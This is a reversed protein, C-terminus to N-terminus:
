RLASSSSSRLLAQHASAFRSLYTINKSILHMRGQRPDNIKVTAIAKSPASIPKDKPEDAHAVFFGMQTGLIGCHVVAKWCVIVGPKLVYTLM